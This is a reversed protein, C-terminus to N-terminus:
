RIAVGQASASAVLGTLKTYPLGTSYTLTVTVSVNTGIANPAPLPSVVITVCGTCSPAGWLFPTVINNIATQTYPALSTNSHLVAYRLAAKSAFTANCYAFLFIAFSTFGFVLMFYVPLM